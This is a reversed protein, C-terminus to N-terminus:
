SPEANGAAVPTRSRTDDNLWLGMLTGLGYLFHYCPMVLAVYPSNKWGHRAGISVATGLTAALYIALGALGIWLVPRFLLGILLSSLLGGAFGVPAAHRWCFSGRYRLWMRPAWIGNMWAQRMFKRFTASNYYRCSIKSSLYIAYGARRIRANLEFDQNRVLDERYLGVQELVQRPFAGFPVTDVYRDGEGVRYAANGVGTRTQTFLAIAKAIQRDSGPQTLWRGGVNGAGTRELESVCNEVYDTPYECHADMRIIYRGRAQRIGLNMGSPVFRAPNHLLRISPHAAAKALVVERSGDESAGDAVLIEYQQGPFGNALVSDLCRGIYKEENRMPIIISVTLSEDGADGPMKSQMEDEMNQSRAAPAACEVAAAPAKATTRYKLLKAPVGGVVANAPVDGTVVAGAALVAGDGINVGPLIICRAGIWVDDGIRVAASELPQLRMPTGAAMGHNSTYVLVEPGMMVDNGIAVEATSGIISDQGMMSHNGISVNAGSGFYVRPRINVGQGCKRFIRKVVFRNLRAGITGQNDSSRIHSTIGYYLALALRRRM